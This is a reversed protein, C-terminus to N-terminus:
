EGTSPCKTTKLKSRKNLEMCALDFLANTVTELYSEAGKGFLTSVRLREQTFTRSNGEGPIRILKLNMGPIQM